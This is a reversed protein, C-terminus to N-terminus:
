SCTRSSRLSHHFVHHNKLSTKDKWQWSIKKQAKRLHGSINSDLEVTKRRM